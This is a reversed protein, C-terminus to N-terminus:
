QKPVVVTITAKIKKNNDAIVTIKASSGAKVGTIKGSQDVTVNKANSTSWKLDKRPEWGPEGTVKATLVASEGARVTISKGQDISVKKPARMDKIVFTVKATAKSNKAATATITAKGTKLPKVLGNNDVTAIKAASSKWNIASMAVGEPELTAHLQITQSLDLQVTGTRNLKLGTPYTADLVTVTCKAKKNNYTSVTITTKGPGVATVIGNASVTVVSDSYGSYKLTTASGAPLTAQLIASTGKGRLPDFSLSMTKEVKVSKPAGQVKVKLKPSTVGTGDTAEAWVTTTGAKVAKVTGDAAITAIKADETHWKVNQPANAPTVAVDLKVSQKAPDLWLELSGSISAGNQRIALKETGPAITIAFTGESAPSDNVHCTLTVTEGIHNAAAKNVTVQGNRDVSVLEPASSQWDTHVIHEGSVYKVTLKQTSGVVMEHSGTVVVEGPYYDRDIVTGKIKGYNFLRGQHSLACGKEITLTLGKPITYSYTNPLDFSKKLTANKWLTFNSDGAYAFVATNKDVSEGKDGYLNSCLLLSNKATVKGTALLGSEEDHADSAEVLSGSINLDGDAVIIKGGTLQCNEISIDGEQTYLSGGGYVNSLRIDGLVAASGTWDCDRLTVDGMSAVDCVLAGDGSITGGKSLVLQGASNHSGGQVYVSLARESAIDGHSFGCLILQKKQHDWRWGDGSVDGNDLEYETFADDGVALSVVIDEGLRRYRGSNMLLYTSVDDAKTLGNVDLTNVNLLRSDDSLEATLTGGLVLRDARVAVSAADQNDIYLKGRTASITDIAHIYDVTVQGGTQSYGGCDIGDSVRLLSGQVDVQGATLTGAVYLSYYYDYMGTDYDAITLREAIMPNACTMFARELTLSQFRMGPVGSYDGNWNPEMVMRDINGCNIDYFQGSTVRMNRVDVSGLGNIQGDGGLEVDQASLSEVICRNTLYLKIADGAYAVDFRRTYYSGQLHLTGNEADWTWYAKNGEADVAMFSQRLASAGYSIGNVTLLPEEEDDVALAPDLPESEEFTEEEDGLELEIEELAPEVIDEEALAPVTGLMALALLVALFRKM